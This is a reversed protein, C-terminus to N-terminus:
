VFLCLSCVAVVLFVLLLCKDVFADCFVLRDGSVMAAVVLMTLEVLALLFVVAVVAAELVSLSVCSCLGALVAVWFLLWFRM